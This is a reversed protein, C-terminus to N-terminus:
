QLLSKIKEVVEELKYNTKVLYNTAGLSLAREVETSGELNSLILIPIRGTASNQRLEKIVEFGDKKPLILDLLILDPLEERAIRAGIEGDLASLVQYGRESLAGTLARQLASEDEIFLIKKLM